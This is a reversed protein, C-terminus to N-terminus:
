TINPHAHFNKVPILNHVGDALPLNVENTTAQSGPMGDTDVTGNTIKMLFAHFHIPHNNKFISDFLGLNRTDQVPGM